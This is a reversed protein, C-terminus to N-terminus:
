KYWKMTRTRRNISNGENQNRKASKGQLKTNQSTFDCTQRLRNTTPSQLNASNTSVEPTAGPRAAAKLLIAMVHRLRDESDPSAVYSINAVLPQHNAKVQKNAVDPMGRKGTPLPRVGRCFFSPSNRLFM